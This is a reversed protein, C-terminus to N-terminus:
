LRGCTPRGGGGHSWREFETKRWIVPSRQTLTKTADRGATQRDVAQTGCTTPWTDKWVHVYLHPGIARAFLVHPPQHPRLHAPASTPILVHIYLSLQLLGVTPKRTASQSYKSNTASQRPRWLGVRASLDVTLSGECILRANVSQLIGDTVGGDM